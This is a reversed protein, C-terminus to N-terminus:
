ALLCVTMETCYTGCIKGAVEGYQYVIWSRSRTLGGQDCEELQKDFGLYLGRPPLTRQLQQRTGAEGHGLKGEGPM